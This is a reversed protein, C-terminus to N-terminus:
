RSARRTASRRPPRPRATGTGCPSAGRRRTGARHGRPQATRRRGRVRPDAGEVRGPRGPHAHAVRDAARLVVDGRLARDHGAAPRRRLAGPQRHAGHCRREVARVPQEVRAEGLGALLYEPTRRRPAPRDLVHHVPARGPVVRPHARGAEAARHYRLHLLAAASRAGPDPRGRQLRRALRVRRRLAALGPGARRGRYADLRRTRGRLAARRVTRAIVHTVDGRDVRDALDATGLLTSAPIIVAGLKIAALITEWLEVQNGLMLLLHDGRGVGHARLWGAVQSSRSSMDAFTLKPRRSATTRRSSGCRPRTPTSSRSCGTSGTGRGTSTRRAEALRLGRVRAAYDDRTLRAPFRARRPVGRHRFRRRSM